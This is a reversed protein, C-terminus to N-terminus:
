CLVRLLSIMIVKREAELRVACHMDVHQLHMDFIRIKQMNAERPLHMNGQCKNKCIYANTSWFFICFIHMKELFIYIKQIKLM